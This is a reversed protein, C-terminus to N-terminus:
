PPGGSVLYAHGALALSRAVCAGQFGYGEDLMACVSRGAKVVVDPAADVRTALGANNISRVRSLFDSDPSDADAPVPVPSAMGITSAIIVTVVPTFKDRIM